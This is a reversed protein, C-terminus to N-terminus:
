HVNRGQITSACELTLSQMGGKQGVCLSSRKHVFGQKIGAKKYM